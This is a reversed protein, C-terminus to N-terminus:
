KEAWTEITKVEVTIHVDPFLKKMEEVMIQEVMAEVTEAEQDPAEVLIEDHICSVIRSGTPLETHLRCLARKLGDAASGQVPTNLLSSYRKWWNERGSPLLRRRGLITRVEEASNAADAQRSQWNAFHPYANLFASRYSEAQERTLTVGYSKRAYEVLGEARQGFLLGFNVAKALQREEKGILLKDKNLVLSATQVHLDTGAAFAVIMRMEKSLAAAVRLEIQSYDGGILKHGKKARICSRLEGRPINQMNPNSSSFRGTRAKLPDFSAHVRGDAEIHDLLADCAEVSKKSRRYRVLKSAVPDNIQSLTDEKTDKIAYGRQGLVAKVQQPSDPNFSSGALKGLEQEEASADQQYRDRLSKAHEIDVEIGENQLSVAVLLTSMELDATDQLSAARLSAKLEDALRVLHVVDRAAYDLQEPALAGSWDSAGHEKQIRVNLVRDLVSALDHAPADDGAHLIRSATMTCFVSSATFGYRKALFSLDFRLNHGILHCHRLVELVPGISANVAQLDIVYVNDDVALQLLRIDGKRPDLADGKEKGFTEIDLAVAKEPASRLAAEALALGDQTHVYTYNLISGAVECVNCVEFQRTSPPDGESAHHSSSPCGTGETGVASADQNCTQSTQSTQMSPSVPEPGDQNEKARVFAFKKRHPDSADIRMEIGSLERGDFRALIKGLKTQDDRNDLKLYPFPWEEGTRMIEYLQTKNIPANGFREHASLYVRRMDETDRDGIQTKIDPPRICPDGLECATMIGGVIRSWTPFSAFPTPGEPRGMEQWRKLLAFLAGLLRPRNGRVWQQLNPHRFTRANPNEGPYRLRIFIARADLDVTLTAGVNMSLSYEAENPLELERSHGLCRDKWLLSADTAAELSPYNIHGRLNAIHFFPNGTRLASTIRKRMEADGDKELPPAVAGEGTYLTSVMMAITDKGLRPQNALMIFVPTKEWRMLGRCFPTLLRSIASTKSLEDHWPFGGSEADGMLDHIITLAEDYSVQAIQPAKPDLYTQHRPDYGHRPFEIGGDEGQVPIPVQLVRGITPLKDKLSHSELLTSAIDMSMSKPVFRSEGDRAPKHIGFEIHEEFATIAARPTLQQLKTRSGSTPHSRIQVVEEGRVYYGSLCSLEKTVDRVFLRLPQGEGPLIVRPRYREGCCDDILDPHSADFAAIAEPLKRSECHAHSCHFAARRGENGEFVVTSSDDPSWKLGGDGHEECFPCRVTHKKEPGGLAKGYKGARTFVEVIDLTRLDGKHNRQLQEWALEIDHGHDQAQHPLEFGFVDQLTKWSIVWPEGCGVWEYVFGCERRSPPVTIHMGSLFLEAGVAGPLISRLPTGRPTGDPKLITPLDPCRFYVHRGGRTSVNLAGRLEPRSDAWGRASAGKDVKSDLDVVVHQPPLLIAVNHPNVGGWYRHQTASDSWDPQLDRYGKIAPVKGDQRGPGSGPPHLPFVTIGMDAYIEAAELPSTPFSSPILIRPSDQQKSVGQSKDSNTYIKM